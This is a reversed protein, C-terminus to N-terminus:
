SKTQVWDSRFGLWTTYELSKVVVSVMFHNKLKLIYISADPM